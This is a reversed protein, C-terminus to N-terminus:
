IALTRPNSRSPCCYEALVAHSCHVLRLVPLRGAVARQQLAVTQSQNHRYGTLLLRCGKGWWWWDDGAVTRGNKHLNSVTRSLSGHQAPTAVTNRARKGIGVGCWGSWKAGPQRLLGDTAAHERSDIMIVATNCSYGRNNRLVARQNEKVKGTLIVISLWDQKNLKKANLFIRVLSRLKYQFLYDIPSMTTKHYNPNRDFKFEM